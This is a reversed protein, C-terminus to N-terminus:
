KTEFLNKNNYVWYIDKEPIKDIFVDEENYEWGDSVYLDFDNPEPYQSYIEKSDCDIYIVPEFEELTSNAKIGGLLMLTLKQTNIKYSELSNEEKEWEKKNEEYFLDKNLIYWNFNNEKKIGVILNEDYIPEIM